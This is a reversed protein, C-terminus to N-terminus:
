GLLLSWFWPLGLLFHSVIGGTLIEAAAPLWALRLVAFSLKRLKVVDLGLGARTLIVTQAVKM